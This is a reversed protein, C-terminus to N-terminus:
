PHLVEAKICTYGFKSRVFVGGARNCADERQATKYAVFGIGAISLCIACVVAAILPDIKM